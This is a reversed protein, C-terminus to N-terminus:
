VADSRRYLTLGVAVAALLGACGRNVGRMVRASFTRMAHRGGFAYLSMMLCDVLASILALVLYQEAMPADPRIFQPLFASFFLVGKPNSLGVLVARWFAAAGGQGGGALAEARLPQAPARWMGWALYLLYAAGLWKVGSFLQESTQLLAGLGCGVAAILLLDSLVAGAMGWLAVRMGYCAGNNLALLMSPGPTIMVASVAILYLLLTSTHM